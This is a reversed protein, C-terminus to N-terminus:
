NRESKQGDIYQNAQDVGLSELTYDLIREVDEEAAQAFRYRPM